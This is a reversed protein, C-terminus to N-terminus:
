KPKATSFRVVQKPTLHVRFEYFGAAAEKVAEIEDPRLGLERARIAFQNLSGCVVAQANQGAYGIPIVAVRYVTSDRPNPLIDVLVKFESNM